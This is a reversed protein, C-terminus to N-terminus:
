TKCVNKQTGHGKSQLACRGSARYRKTITSGEKAAKEEREDTERARMCRATNLLADAAILYLTNARASISSFFPHLSPMVTALARATAASLVPSLPPQANLRDPIKSEVQERFVHFIMSTQAGRAQRTMPRRFNVHSRGPFITRILFGSLIPAFCARERETPAPSRSYFDSPAGQHTKTNEEKKKEM